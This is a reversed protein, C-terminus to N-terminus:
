NFLVGLKKIVINAVIEFAESESTILKLPEIAALLLDLRIKTPIENIILVKDFCQDSSWEITLSKFKESSTKIIYCGLNETLEDNFHDKKVGSLKRWVSSFECVNLNEVTHNRELIPIEAKLYKEIADLEPKMEKRTNPTLTTTCEVPDPQPYELEPCKENNTQDFCLKVEKPTPYEKEAEIMDKLISITGNFSEIETDKNKYEEAVIM